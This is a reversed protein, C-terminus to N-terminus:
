KLCLLHTELVSHQGVYDKEVSIIIEFDPNNKMTTRPFSFVSCVHMYVSDVSDHLQNIAQITNIPNGANCLFECTHLYSASPGQGWPAKVPSYLQWCGIDSCPFLSLVELIGPSSVCSPSYASDGHWFFFNLDPSSVASSFASLGTSALSAWGLWVGM